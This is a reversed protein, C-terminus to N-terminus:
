WTVPLSRVGNIPSWLKFPVEDLPVALQLTPIRRLLTEFIVHLEV